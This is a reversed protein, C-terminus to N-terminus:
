NSPLQDVRRETIWNVALRMAAAAGGPEAGNERVIRYEDSEEIVDDNLAIRPM